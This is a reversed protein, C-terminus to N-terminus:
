CIVLSHSFDTNRITGYAPYKWIGSFSSLFIPGPKHGKWFADTSLKILGLPDLSINLLWEASCLLYLPDTSISLTDYKLFNYHMTEIFVKKLIFVLKMFFNKFQLELQNIDQLGHSWWGAIYPLYIFYCCSMRNCLLNIFRPGLLTRTSGKAAQM